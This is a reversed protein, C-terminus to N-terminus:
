PLRLRLKVSSANHASDGIKLSLIQRGGRRRRVKRALSVAASVAPAVIRVTMRAVPRKLRITLVGHRVTVSGRPKRGGVLVRGAILGADFRLGRPLRVAVSVLRPSRRGATVTFTVQPVRRAVGRISARSTRPPAFPTVARSRASAPSTGGANTAFVRFRYRKGNRLGRVTIPSRAGSAQAGGPAAIVRYTVPGAAPRPKFAVKVRRNAGTAAIKTPAGPAAVYHFQDDATVPTTGAPATAIVDAVGAGHPPAVADIETPSLVRFSTAPVGAFTVASVADIGAAAFGSGRIAVATGGRAPGLAPAVSAIAPPPTATYSWVAGALNSDSQGSILLTGADQSLALRAGFVASGFEADTGTPATLKGHLTWTNGSRSFAYASGIAANDFPAGVVVTAADSSLVASAGFFGQGIEAGAGSSPAALKQRESWATATTRTFLWAAGRQNDSQGGILATSADASLSVASGFTPTGVGADPGTTPAVLKTHEAWTGGSDAYVWAAGVSGNDGDGGIVAASGDPSLWVASGFDGAGIERDAGSTPATLKHQETWTTATTSPRTYTWAAGVFANDQVGAILAATGAADLAIRSGFRGPSLERDAGSTPAALKQQVNWGSPGRTYVWAAGADSNDGFGGIVATNGDASLAVEGGFETNTGIARNAGSTPPQLKAQLTWAVGSRTFVYAAGTGSAEDFAGIIATTGDASIASSGGLEGGGAEASPGTTPASLKAFELFSDGAAGRAGTAWLASVAIIATIIVALHRGRLVSSM